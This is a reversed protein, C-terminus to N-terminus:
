LQPYSQSFPHRGPKQVIINSNKKEYSIFIKHSSVEPGRLYKWTSIKAGMQHHKGLVIIGRRKALYSKEIKM